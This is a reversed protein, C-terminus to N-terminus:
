MVHNKVCLTYTHVMYEIPTMTNLWTQIKRIHALKMNV